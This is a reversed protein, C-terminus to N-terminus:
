RAREKVILQIPIGGVRPHTSLRKLLFHQFPIPVYGAPRVTLEVRVPRGPVWRAQQLQIPRGRFRPTPRNAWLEQVLRHCTDDSMPRHMARFVNRALALSQAVHFGTKASVAVVPAFAAAPLARHVVEALTRERGGKVLDWKNMLVVLGRGADCVQQVIRRDDQTLGQTADLVVLAVDCRTMAEISRSMAFLDVPHKVKRRHRLGATDILCVPAGDVTLTTDIADRTTGPAESVIVREERLLANYLSSKGVNQRGVIAVAMVPSGSPAPPAGESPFHEVLRDLLDGTGRGHLASVPLIESVGLRFLEPPVVPRYDAKNAVVIVPKGTQRLHEMILEDMPVLGQPADCVFVIGDAEHIAQRVHRQIAAALGNEKTFEFGGCDVLTLARGRWHAQGAVRDRTTGRLPSVVAKRAGLLRNFLTSKGVNPRGVIAILPRQINPEM